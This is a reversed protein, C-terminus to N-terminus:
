RGVGESTARDPRVRQRARQGRARSQPRTPLRRSLAPASTDALAGALASVSPTFFYGGGTMVVWADEPLAIQQDRTVDGDIPLRIFRAGIKQSILPDHGTEPDGHHPADAQNVWTHTVFQFQDAISSQYAMFLLGRDVGDDELLKTRDPPPGYPIGRRLMSRNLTGGDTPDDRPNV